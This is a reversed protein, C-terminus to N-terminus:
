HRTQRRRTNSYIPSVHPHKLMWRPNQRMRPDANLMQDEMKKLKKLVSIAAHPDFGADAMLMMGICDAEGERKWSQYYLASAIGAIPLWFVLFEAVGFLGLLAFPVFPVAVAGALLNVSKDEMKHNALVHAIEHALISALEDDSRVAHTFIGSNILVLGSSSSISADAIALM